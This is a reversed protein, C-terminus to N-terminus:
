IEETEIFEAHEGDGSGDGGVGDDSDQIGFVEDLFEEEPDRARKRPPPEPTPHALESYLKRVERVLQRVAEDEREGPIGGVAALVTLLAREATSTETPKTSAIVAAVTAPLTSQLASSWFNIWRTTEFSAEHKLHQRHNVLTHHVADVSQTTRALAQNALTRWKDDSAAKALAMRATQDFIAEVLLRIGHVFAVGAIVAVSPWALIALLTLTQDTTM